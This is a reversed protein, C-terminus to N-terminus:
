RDGDAPTTERALRPALVAMLPVITLATGAAVLVAGSAGVVDGLRGYLVPSLASSGLVGTYFLAFAREVQAAPVLEPVTGYLVSSTGNLMAGLVPLVMLSPILPLLLVALILLATGVETTVVAILLGFRAGFWGCAAKGFAGGLFVLMLAFGVTPGSAGKAALLFPLFLLFAMRPASDLVGVAMLLGFGGKGAARRSAPGTASSALRSDTAGRAGRGDTRRGARRGDAAPMQWLILMAVGAALLAVSWLAMRWSVVTLLLSVTPPLAAKGLDGAFNYTSLPGRAGSGYARSVAASALPHQTSGGSGALLLAACLGILSGSLGALAFGGASLVTGLVLVSKGDLWRTLRGSPVQLSALAGVYVARLVALAAYGLGFQAQWVPLMVYIMDTLGDHLAHAVGAFVLTRRADTRHPVLQGAPTGVWGQSMAVEQM